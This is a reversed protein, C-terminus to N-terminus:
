MLNDTIKIFFASNWLELSKIDKIDTGAKVDQSIVEYADVMDSYEYEQIVTIDNKSAWTMVDTLSKGRFDVMQNLTPLSIIHMSIVISFAFYALLLFGSFWINGNKRRNSTFGLCVFFMTFLVLLFSGIFEALHGFQNEQYFLSILFSGISALLVLVLFFNLCHHTAKKQRAHRPIFNTDEEEEEEIDVKKSIEEEIELTDNKKSDKKKAASM